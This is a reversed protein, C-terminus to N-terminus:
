LAWYVGVVRVASLKDYTIIGKGLNKELYLISKYPNLGTIGFFIVAIKKVGLRPLQRLQELV